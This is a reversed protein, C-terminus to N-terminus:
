PEVFLSSSHYDDRPLQDIVGMGQLVWSSNPPAKRTYEVPQQFINISQAKDRTTKCVMTVPQVIMDITHRSGSTRPSM